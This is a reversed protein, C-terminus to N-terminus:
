FIRFSTERVVGDRWGYARVVPDDPRREAGKGSVLGVQYPASFSARFVSRDAPSLFVTATKCAPIIQLCTRGCPPPHNHHWGCITQGTARSRHEEMVAQFALPSFSFHKESASTEKFPIRGQLVVAVSGDDEQILQGTLVDAREKELSAATAERLEELLASSVFLSFPEGEECGQQIGLSSLARKVFPYRERSIAVRFRPKKSVEEKKEAEVMWVPDAEPDGDENGSGSGSGNILEKRVFLQVAQDAFFGLPYSKTVCEMTASVGGLKGDKWSPEIRAPVSGGDNPVKGSRVLAFLMDEYVPQLTAEERHIVRGAENQLSIFFRHSAELMAPM